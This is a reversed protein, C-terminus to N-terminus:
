QSVEMLKLLTRAVRQIEDRMQEDTPGEIEVGSSAEIEKKKLYMQYLHFAVHATYKNIRQQITTEANKKAILTDRYSTLLEMEQNIFITLPLKASPPEFSGADGDTWADGWCTEDSWNEKKVYM